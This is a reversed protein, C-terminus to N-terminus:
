MLDKLDRITRTKGDRWERRGALSAEKADEMEWRRRAKETLEKPDVAILRRSSGGRELIKKPIEITITTM